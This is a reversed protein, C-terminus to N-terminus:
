GCRRCIDRFLTVNELPQNLVITACPKGPKHHEGGRLTFRAPIWDKAKLTPSMELDAALELPDLPDLISQFNFHVRTFWFELLIGSEM